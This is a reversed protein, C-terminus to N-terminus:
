RFLWIWTRNTLGDLTTSKGLRTAIITPRGLVISQNFNTHPSRRGKFDSIVGFVTQENSFRARRSTGDVPTIRRSRTSNELRCISSPSEFAHRDSLRSRKVTRETAEYSVKDSVIM